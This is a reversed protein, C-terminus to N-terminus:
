KTAEILTQFLLDACNSLDNVAEDILNESIEEYLNFQLSSVLFMEESNMCLKAGWLSKNAHFILDRKEKHLVNKLSGMVGCVLSHKDSNFQARIIVYNNEEELLPIGLTDNEQAVYYKTNMRVALTNEGVSKFGRKKELFDKIGATPINMGLLDLKLM